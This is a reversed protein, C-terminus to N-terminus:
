AVTYNKPIFKNQLDDRVITVLAFAITGATFNTSTATVFNLRLFRPRANAPFAPLWPFRAVVQNASLNAASIAGTEAYTTWTTPTWNGGAGPDPAGQFQINLTASNATTAATGVAVELETRFQGVGLDAGFNTAAGWIALGTPNVGVGLGLLDLINTSPFSIGTSASVFSLPAGLPIFSLQSDIRM